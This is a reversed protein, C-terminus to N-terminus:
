KEALLSRKLSEWSLKLTSEEDFGLLDEWAKDGLPTDPDFLAAALPESSSVEPPEYESLRGDGSHCEQDVVDILGTRELFPEANDRGAHEALLSARLRAISEGIADSRESNWTLNLETDLGMSRNTLNASGITLVEDDVIMLKSHLYTVVQKGKSTRSSSNVCRFRHGFQRSQAAVESLVRAQQAGLAFREKPSEAGDPMVLIVQLKPMANSAMRGILARAIAGSTVYQTELYILERAASILREYMALTECVGPDSGVPPLTRSVSVECSDFGAADEGCLSEFRSSDISDNAPRKEPTQGPWASWFIEEIRQVIAGRVAGQVDHFPTRPSGWETDRLPNEPEHSRTDWRAVGLDIGGCFAVCGDVVVLKEHCSGLPDPHSRWHFHLREHAVLRAQLMSLWTRELAFVLSYDWALVYVQLDPKAECLANLLPWLTVPYEAAEADDGRLLLVEPDLQWGAILIRDEASQCARYFARFYEEGDILVRSETASVRCYRTPDSVTM